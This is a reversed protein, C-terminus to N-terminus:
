WKLPRVTAAVGEPVAEVGPVLDGNEDMVAWEGIREVQRNPMDAVIRALRVGAEDSDVPVWGEVDVMEVVGAEVDVVRYASVVEVIQWASGVESKNLRTSTHVAQPAHVQAWEIAAAEDVVEIRAPVRRTAVVGHALQHSKLRDTRREIGWAELQDELWAATAAMRNKARQWATIQEDYEAVRAHVEGVVRMAWDAQGLTQIRWPERHAPPPTGNLWDLVEGMVADEDVPAPLDAIRDLEM